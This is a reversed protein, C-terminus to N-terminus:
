HHLHCLSAAARAALECPKGLSIGDDIGGVPDIDCDGYMGKDRTMHSAGSGKDAEYFSELAGLSMREKARLPLHAGMAEEPLVSVHSSGLESARNRQAFLMGPQCM